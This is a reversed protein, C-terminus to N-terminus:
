GDNEEMYVNTWSVNKESKEIKCQKTIFSNSRINKAHNRVEKLYYDEGSCLLNGNFRKYTNCFVTPTTIWVKKGNKLVQKKIHRRYIIGLDDQLITFLESLVKPNIRIEDGIDGYYRYYVEPNEEENSFTSRLVIKYRLYSFVTLLNCNTMVRNKTSFDYSMIKKIEDLYVMAFHEKDILDFYKEINFEAKILKSSQSYLLDEDIKIYENRNLKEIIEIFVDNIMGHHPNPKFGCWLVLKNISFAIENNKDSHQWFFVYTAILKPDPIRDRAIINENKETGDCLDDSGCFRENHFANNNGWESLSKNDTTDSEIKKIKNFLISRPISVFIKEDYNLKKLKKQEDDIRKEVNKIEM